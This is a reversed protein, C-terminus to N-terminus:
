GLFQSCFIALSMSSYLGMTSSIEDFTVLFKLKLLWRTQLRAEELVATLQEHDLGCKTVTVVRVKKLMNFDLSM